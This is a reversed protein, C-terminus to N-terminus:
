WAEGKPLSVLTWGNMMAARVIETWGNGWTKGEAQWIEWSHNYCWRRSVAGDANRAELPRFHSPEEPLNIPWPQTEDLVEMVM